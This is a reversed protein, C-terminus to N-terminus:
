FTRRGEKEREIRMGGIGEKQERGGGGWM